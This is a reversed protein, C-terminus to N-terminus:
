SNRQTHRIRQNSQIRSLYYHNRSGIRWQQRCPAAPGRDPEETPVASPLPFTEIEFEGEEWEEPNTKKIGWQKGELELYEIAREKWDLDDEYWNARSRWTLHMVKREEQDVSTPPPPPGRGEEETLIAEFSAPVQIRSGRRM